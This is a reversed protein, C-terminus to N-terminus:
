TIFEKSSPGPYPMFPPPGAAKLAAMLDQIEWPSLPLYTPVAAVGDDVELLTRGDRPRLVRVSM